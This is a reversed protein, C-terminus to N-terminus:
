CHDTEYEEEKHMTIALHFAIVKFFHLSCDNAENLMM